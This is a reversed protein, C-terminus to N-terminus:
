HKVEESKMTNQGRSGTKITNQGGCRINDKMDSVNGQNSLSLGTPHIERIRIRKRNRYTIRGNELEIKYTRTRVRGIIKATNDWNGTDANQVWIKAGSEFPELDRAHLNYRAKQKEDIIKRRKRAKEVFENTGLAETLTPILTRVSRGFVVQCPSYGDARPTNRLQAMGDLFQKSQIDNDTKLILQKVIAVNREAHGNSQPNYPSSKGHQICYDELYTRM